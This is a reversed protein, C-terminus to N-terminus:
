FSISSLLNIGDASVQWYPEGKEPTHLEYEVTVKEPLLYEGGTWEDVQTFGLERFDQRTRHSAGLQGNTLIMPKQKGYYLVKEVIMPLKRGIAYQKLAEMAAEVTKFESWGIKGLAALVVSPPLIADLENDWWDTCLSDMLPVHKEASFATSGAPIDSKTKGKKPTAPQMLQARKTNADLVAQIAEKGTPYKAWSEVAKPDDMDVLLKLEADVNEPALHLEQMIKGIVLQRNKDADEGTLWKPLVVPEPAAPEEVIVPEGNEDIDVRPPPEQTVQKTPTTAPRATSQVVTMRGDETVNVDLGALTALEEKTYGLGQLKDAFCVRNCAAIARWKYMNRKQNKYNAKNILPIVQKQGGVWETTMFASAETDGFVETHATMGRRKMTVVCREETADITIDELEGSSYALGLMGQGDLCPKGAILDISELAAMESMGVSLGKMMIIFLDGKSLPKSGSGKYSLQSNALMEALLELRGVQEKTMELISRPLRFPALAMTGPMTSNPNVLQISSNEM